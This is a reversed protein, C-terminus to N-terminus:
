STQVGSNCGWLFHLILTNLRNVMQYDPRPLPLVLYTFQSLILSKIILGKGLLTLNRKSWIEVWSKAKEFKSNYNINVIEEVSKDNHFTVGLATFTNQVFDTGFKDTIDELLSTNYRAWGLLICSTKSVNTKCGSHVGFESLEQVIADICQISAQTFIDTDDAFLSLFIDVGQVRIDHRSELRCSRVQAVLLFIISSLPSGQHLGRFIYIPSSLHGNIYAFSMCGFFAVKVLKIIYNGFGFQEMCKFLFNYEVSDFAKEYDVQLLLGEQDPNNQFYELNLCMLILNDSTSKGAQFGSQVESIISPLAKLIKNKIIHTFKKYDVSLLTIPRWNNNYRLEMPTKAKPLLILIGIRQSPSMCDM